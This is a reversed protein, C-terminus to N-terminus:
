GGEMPRSIDAVEAGTLRKIDSPSIELLRNIAGGGGYVKELRMVRSDIITRIPRRHGLPPLAGVEYGTLSRVAKPRARRVREVGCVEALRVEDVLRDGTVIALLPRGEDDVYLMSKIIRGRDVGLQREAAEVTMTHGEFELLRYDVGAERLIRELDEHTLGSNLAVEVSFLTYGRKLM